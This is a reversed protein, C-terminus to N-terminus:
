KVLHITKGFHKYFKEYSISFAIKNSVLFEAEEEKTKYSLNTSIETVIINKNIANIKYLSNMKYDVGKFNHIYGSFNFVDKKSIRIADSPINNERKIEESCKVGVNGNEDKKAIMSFKNVVKSVAKGKDNLHFYVSHSANSGKKKSHYKNKSVKKGLYLNEEKNTTNEIYAGEPMKRLNSNKKDKKDLIFDEGTNPNKVIVNDQKIDKGDKDKDLVIGKVEYGKSMVVGDKKYSGYITDGFMKGRPSMTTTKKGNDDVSVRKKFSRVKKFTPKTNNEVMKLVNIIDEIDKDDNIYIDMEKFYNYMDSVDNLNPKYKTERTSKSHFVNKRHKLLLLLFCDVMHHHNWDRDKPLDLIRKGRIKGIYSFQRPTYSIRSRDVGFVDTLIDTLASVSHSINSLLSSGFEMELEDKSSEMLLINMKKNFYSVLHRRLDYKDIKKFIGNTKINGKKDTEKHYFDLHSDIYCVDNNYLKGGHEEEIYISIDECIDDIRSTGYINNLQKKFGSKNLNLDSSLPLNNDKEKNLSHKCPVLNSINNGYSTVWSRPVVHDKDTDELSLPNGDYVDIGGSEYLIRSRSYNNSPYKNLSVNKIVRNFIHEFANEEKNSKARTSEIVYDINRIKEIGQILQTRNKPNDSFIVNMINDVMLFMKQQVNPDTWKKKLVSNIYNQIEFKLKAELGNSRFRISKDNIINDIESIKLLGLDKEMFSKVDNIKKNSICARNKDYGEDTSYVKNLVLLNLMNGTRNIRGKFLFNSYIKAFKDSVDSVVSGSEEFYELISDKKSATLNFEKFSKLPKGTEYSNYISSFIDAVNDINLISNKGKKFFLEDNDFFPDYKLIDIIVSNIFGNNSKDTLKKIFKDKYEDNLEKIDKENSTNLKLHTIRLEQYPNNKDGRKHSEKKHNLFSCDGRKENKRENQNKNYFIINALKRANRSYKGGLKSIIDIYFEKNDNQNFFSLDNPSFMMNIKNSRITPYYSVKHDELDNPISKIIDELKRKGIAKVGKKSLKKTVKQDEKSLKIKSKQSQAGRSNLMWLSIIYFAVDEDSYSVGDVTLNMKPLENKNVLCHALYVPNFKYDGKLEKRHKHLKTHSSKLIKSSTDFFNEKRKKKNKLTNSVTTKKKENFIKFYQNHEGDIVLYSVYNNKNVDIGMINDINKNKLFNDLLSNNSSL